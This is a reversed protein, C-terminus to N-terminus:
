GVPFRAAKLVIRYRADRFPNSNLRGHGGGALADHDGAAGAKESRM